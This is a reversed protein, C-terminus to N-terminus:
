VDVGRVTKRKNHKARIQAMKVQYLVMDNLRNCFDRGVQNPKLIEKIKNRRILFPKKEDEM